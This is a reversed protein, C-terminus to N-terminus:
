THQHAFCDRKDLGSGYYSANESHGTNRCLSVLPNHVRQFNFSLACWLSCVSHQTQHKQSGKYKLSNKMLLNVKMKLKIICVKCNTEQIKTHHMRVIINEDINPTTQIAAMVTPDGISNTCCNSTRISPGGM